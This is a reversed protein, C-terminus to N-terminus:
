FIQPPARDLIARQDPSLIVYLARVPKAITQVLETQVSLQKELFEMTSPLPPTDSLNEPLLKCPEYMKIRVPNAADEMKQWAEIQAGVLQLKTKLDDAIAARRKIDDECAGRTPEVLQSFLYPSVSAPLTDFMASWSVSSDRKRTGVTGWLAVALVVVALSAWHFATKAGDKVILSRDPRMTIKQRGFYSLTNGPNKRRTVSHIRFASVRPASIEARLFGSACDRAPSRTQL